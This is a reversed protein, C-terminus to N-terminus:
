VFECLTDPVVTSSGEVNLQASTTTQGYKNVATCEYRGTDQPFVEVIFLVVEGTEKNYSTRFDPNDYVVKGDHYWTIDPMPNGRVKAVFRTEDGDMVKQSQLEWIFVPPSGELQFLV